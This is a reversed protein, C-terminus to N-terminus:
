LLDKYEDRPIRHYGRWDISGAIRSTAPVTLTQWVMGCSCRGSMVWEYPRKTSPEYDIWTIMDCKNCKVVVSMGSPAEGISKQDTM